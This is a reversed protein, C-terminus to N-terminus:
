RDKNAELWDTILADIIDNFKGRWHRTFTPEASNLIVTSEHRSWTIVESPTQRSPLMAKDTVTASLSYYNWRPARSWVAPRIKVVADAAKADVVAIGALKLRDRAILVLPRFQRRQNRNAKVPFNLEVALSTIGELNQRQDAIPPGNVPARAQTTALLAAFCITALRM